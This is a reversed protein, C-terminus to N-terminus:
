EFFFGRHSPKRYQSTGCLIGPQKHEQQLNQSTFFPILSHEKSVKHVRGMSTEVTHILPDQLNLLILFWVQTHINYVRRLSLKCYQLTDSIIGTYRPEVFCIARLMFSQVISQVISDCIIYVFQTFIKGNQRLNHTQPDKM